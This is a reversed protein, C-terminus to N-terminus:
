LNEYIVQKLAYQYSEPTDIDIWFDNEDMIVAEMEGNEILKQVGASISEKGLQQQEWMARMFREDLVFIGCDIANYTAIEKGINLIYKGNVRVKTADAIDFIRDIKADVLLLNNERPHHLIKRIASPSVIHDSMSLLFPEDNLLNKAALVSIGNGRQWQENHVFEISLNFYDNKKLYDVIDKGKWGIVIVFENIGAESINELITALITKGAFPLLTKPEESDLRSGMGAAIIVAKM